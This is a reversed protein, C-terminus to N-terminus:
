IELGKSVYNIYFPDNLYTISNFTKTHLQNFEKLILTDSIKNIDIYSLGKFEKSVIAIDIDSDEHANGNQYSGYLIIKEVSIQTQLLKKFHTLKTIIDAKSYM